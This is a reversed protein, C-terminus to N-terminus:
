NAPGKIEEPKKDSSFGGTIKLGPPLLLAEGFDLSHCTLLRNLEKQPRITMDPFKHLPRGSREYRFGRLAIGCFLEESAGNGELGGKKREQGLSRGSRSKGFLIIRDQHSSKGSRGIGLCLEFRVACFKFELPPALGLAEDIIIVRDTLGKLPGHIGAPIDEELDLHSVEDQCLFKRAVLGKGVEELFEFLTLPGERRTFKGILFGCKFAHSYFLDLDIVLEASIKLHKHPLDFGNWSLRGSINHLGPFFSLLSRRATTQM